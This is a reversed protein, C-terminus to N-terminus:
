PVDDWPKKVVPPLPLGRQSAEGRVFSVADAFTGCVSYPCPMPKILFIGSLLFRFGTSTNVMGTAMCYERTFNETEKIWRAIREIQSKERAYRKIYSIGVYREKRAHVTEMRKIYAELEAQTLQGDFKTFVFPWQDFSLDIPM